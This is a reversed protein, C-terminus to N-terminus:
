EAVERMISTVEYIKWRSAPSRQNLVSRRGIAPEVAPYRFARAPDPTVMMQSADSVYNQGNHLVFYPKTEM